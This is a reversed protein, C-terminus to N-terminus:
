SCYLVSHYVIMLYPICSAPWIACANPDFVSSKDVAIPCFLHTKILMEYKVNKEQEALVAKCTAQAFTDPCTVVWICQNGPGAMMVCDWQVTVLGYPAWDWQVLSSLTIVIPSQAIHHHYLPVPSQATHLQATCHSRAGYPVM